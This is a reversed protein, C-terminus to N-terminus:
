HRALRLILCGNKMARDALEYRGPPLAIRREFRGYPIELGHVATTAASLPTPRAASVNLAGNAVLIAVDEPAVGPLAVTVEVEHDYAVIDVPPEWRPTQAGGLRFFRRQLRQAEDLLECAEAWMWAQPSRLAM